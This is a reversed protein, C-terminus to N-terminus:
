CDRTTAERYGIKGIGRVTGRLHNAHFKSRLRLLVYVGGPTLNPKRDRTRHFLVGIYVVYFAPYWLMM